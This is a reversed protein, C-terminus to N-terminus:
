LPFPSQHECLRSHEGTYELVYCTIRIQNQATVYSLFIVLYREMHLPILHDILRQRFRQLLQNELTPNTRFIGVKMFAKTDTLKNFARICRARNESLESELGLQIFRRPAEQIWTLDLLYEQVGQRTYVVRFGETTGMNDFFQKIARTWDGKPSNWALGSNLLLWNRFDNALETPSPVM